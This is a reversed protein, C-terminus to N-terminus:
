HMKYLTTTHKKKIENTLGILVMDFLGDHVKRFLSNQEQLLVERQKFFHGHALQNRVHSYNNRKGTWLYALEQTDKKWQKLEPTINDDEHLQQKYRNISNEISWRQEEKATLGKKKWHQEFFSWLAIQSIFIKSRRIASLYEFRELDDKLDYGSITESLEIITKLIHNTITSIPRADNESPPVFYTSKDEGQVQPNHLTANLFAGSVSKLIYSLKDVKDKDDSNISNNFIWICHGYLSVQRQISNYAENGTNGLSTKGLRIEESTYFGWDGFDKITVENKIPNLIWFSVNKTM